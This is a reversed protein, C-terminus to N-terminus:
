GKSGTNVGVDAALDAGFTAITDLTQNINRLIMQTLDGYPSSEKQTPKQTANPTENPNIMAAARVLLMIYAAETAFRTQAFAPAIGLEAAFISTLNQTVEGELHRAALGVDMNRRSIAAIEAWLQGDQPLQASTIKAAILARLAALPRAASKIGAFQTQIIAMDLAIMQAIIDSKSPFYRYFNGVSMGAARALDQMSAGDFGKDAFTNRLRSLIDAVKEDNKHIPCLLFKM